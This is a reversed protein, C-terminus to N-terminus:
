DKIASQVQEIAEDIWSSFEDTDRKRPFQRTKATRLVELAEKSALTVLGNLAEKWVKPDVDQLAEGLFPIATRQRHQWIVEVLFERVQSDSERHFIAILDPLISHDMEVLGFFAADHNGERFLRLYDTITPLTQETLIRDGLLL